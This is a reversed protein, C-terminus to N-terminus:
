GLAAHMEWILVEADAGMATIQRGDSETIRASDGTSLSDAGELAVGGRAAVQNGPEVEKGVHRRGVECEVRGGVDHALHTELAVVVEHAAREAVDRLLAPRCWCFQEDVERDLLVEFGPEDTGVDAVVIHLGDAVHEGVRVHM